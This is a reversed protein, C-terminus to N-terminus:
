RLKMSRQWNFSGSPGLQYGSFNTVWAIMLSGPPSPSVLLKPLFNAALSRNLINIFTYSASTSM